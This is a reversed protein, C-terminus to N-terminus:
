MYATTLPRFISVERAWGSGRIGKGSIEVLEDWLERAEPSYPKTKSLYRHEIVPLTYALLAAKANSLEQQDPALSLGISRNDDRGYDYNENYNITSKWGKVKDIESRLRNELPGGGHRHPETRNCINYLNNLNLMGSGSSDSDPDYGPQVNYPMMSIGDKWANYLKRRDLTYQNIAENVEGLDYGPETQLTQIDHPTLTPYQSMIAPFDTYPDFNLGTSVLYPPITTPNNYLLIRKLEDTLNDMKKGLKRNNLM